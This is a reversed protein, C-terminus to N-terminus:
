NPTTVPPASGLAAAAAAMDAANKCPGGSIVLPPPAMTPEEGEVLLADITVILDEFSPRQTHDRNLCSEMLDAYGKPVGPPLTLRHKGSTVLYVINPMRLGVYARVGSYMEWCIVGFSWVDAAKSLLGDAMLEPSMHSVTGFTGVSVDGKAARALGFDGVRARFCREDETADVAELLVNNGTLDCHLVDKSHLFAMGAAIERLTCLLSRMDPSATLSRKKRMWGRDVAEILTGHNCMQQVMWLTGGGPGEEMMAYDFTKVISPHDLSKSLEAEALASAAASDAQRKATFSCDILKVAVVGTHWEGRYVRGFSGSGILPGLALGKLQRPVAKSAFAQLTRVPPAAEVTGGPTTPAGPASTAASGASPVAATLVHGAASGPPTGEISVFWFCSALQPFSGGPTSPAPGEFVDGGDRQIAGPLAGAHCGAQPELESPVWNPIGIAKSPQLQDSSGPRLTITVKQGTRRSTVTARAPQGAAVAAGLAEQVKDKGEGAPPEFLDWFGLQTCHDADSSGEERAFAENAYLLPWERSRVDLLAVARQSSAVAKAIAAQGESLAAVEDAVEHMSAADRELEQVVLNAFNILLAYMEASFARRKLDVVCLTGYRMGNRGVLPAGAYFKIFPAGAVYPNGAFRADESADETILVEPTNPVSIYNCWSGERTVCAGFPGVKSKFWVRDETILTILAVPTQFISAMLKTIANFRPDDIPTDVLGLAKVASERQQEVEFGRCDFMMVPDTAVSEAPKSSLAEGDSSSPASLPTVAGGKVDKVFEPSVAAAVVAEHQVAAKSGCAGM